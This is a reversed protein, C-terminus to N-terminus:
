GQGSMESFHDAVLGKLDEVHREEGGIYPPRVALTMDPHIGARTAIKGLAPSATIESSVARWRRFLGDIRTRLAAAQEWQGEDCLTWLKLALEPSLNAVFSYFGNAGFLAGPVIQGDVVFHDLEPTAAVIEILSAVNGGTHKSGILNPAVELIARYDEGTLFRGAGAINYHILQVDPLADQLAAFFRLLERDNIPVWSPLAVQIRNIGYERAIRGREIVADTHSATCGAQVPLSVDHSARGFAAALTRFEAMDLIHMEGDTGTTYAGHLGAQHYREVLARVMGSDVQWDHDWPTPMAVWVGRLRERQLRM